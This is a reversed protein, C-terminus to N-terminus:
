IGGGSGCGVMWLGGNQPDLFGGAQSAANVSGAPVQARLNVLMLKTGQAEWPGQAREQAQQPSPPAARPRLTLSGSDFALPLCPGWSIDAPKLFVRPSIDM